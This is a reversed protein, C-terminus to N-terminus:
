DSLEIFVGDQHRATLQCNIRPPYPRFDKTNLTPFLQALRVIVYATETLAFQQGLCIRPGGNFPLYAWGLKDLSEWREPRFEKADKGYYKPDRHTIYYCYAVTTGKPVFVPSSGNPGGGVPLTTDKAAVRFNASVSPYLRLTENIVWKLYECSKLSEFTIQSADYEEGFHQYIESRLKQWIEPNRALEFFCFSLTGATTDRGALLINLLQDQLVKPDKTYKVLEYLFTYGDKSKEELVEPTMTLAKRVFIQALKHVGKISRRFEFGDVFFYAAQTYVRSGLYKQATDFNHAFGAVEESTTLGISEDYLSHVSEGFLFETATDMTLRFFLEQIDFGTGKNKRIHKALIQIHPELKQVHAVQERAFQPRLLQRSHKWGESDLTFIGDGLLPKLHPNRGLGFDNFQTALMAKINEPEGTVLVTLGFLQAKMTWGYKEIIRVGYDLLEGTSKYKLLTYALYLGFLGGERFSPPEKTGHQRRFRERKIYIALSYILISSALIGYWSTLFKIFVTYYDIPQM